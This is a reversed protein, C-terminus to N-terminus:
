ANMKENYYSSFVKSQNSPYTDLREKASSSKISQSHQTKFMSKLNQTDSTLVYSKEARLHKVVNPQMKSKTNGQTYIQISEKSLGQNSTKIGM